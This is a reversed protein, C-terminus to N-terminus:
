FAFLARELFPLFSSTPIIPEPM